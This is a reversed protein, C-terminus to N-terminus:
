YMFRSEAERERREDSLDQFHKQLRHRLVGSVRNWAVCPEVRAGQCKYCQVDYTGSRYDEFFGPDADFEDSSIGHSDISPNVHKGKGDCLSCVEFTMPVSVEELDGDGEDEDLPAIEITVTMAREDFSKYWRGHLQAADRPDM